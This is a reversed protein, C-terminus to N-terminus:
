APLREELRAVLDLPRLDVALLTLIALFLSTTQSGGLADRSSLFERLLGHLEEGGRDAAAM